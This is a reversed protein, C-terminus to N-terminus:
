KTVDGTRRWRARSTWSLRALPSMFSVAGRRDSGCRRSCRAVILTVAITGYVLILAVWIPAIIEFAKALM